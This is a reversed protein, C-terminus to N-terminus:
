SLFVFWLLIRWLIWTNDSISKGTYHVVVRALFFGAVQITCLILVSNKDRLITLNARHRPQGRSRADSCRLAILSSKKSIGHYFCHEWKICLRLPPKKKALTTSPTICNEEQALISYPWKIIYIVLQGARRQGPMRAGRQVQASQAVQTRKAPTQQGEELFDEMNSFTRLRLWSSRCFALRTEAVQFPELLTRPSSSSLRNWTPQSRNPVRCFFPPFRESLPAKEHPSRICRNWRHLSRHTLFGVFFFVASFDRRSEADYLSRRWM